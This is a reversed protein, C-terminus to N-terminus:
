RLTCGCPKPGQTPFLPPTTSQDSGSLTNHLLTGFPPAFWPDTRVGFQMSDSIFVAARDVEDHGCALDAVVNARCIQQAAQRRCFPHQARCRITAVIGIPESIRQFVFPYLGNLHSESLCKRPTQIPKAYFSYQFEVGEDGVMTLRVKEVSEKRHLATYLKGVDDSITDLV